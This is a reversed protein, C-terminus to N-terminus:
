KISKTLLNRDVKKTPLKKDKCLISPSNKSTRETNNKHILNKKFGILREGLTKKSKTKRLTSYIVKNTDTQLKSQFKETTYTPYIKVPKCSKADSSVKFIRNSKPIKSKSDNSSETFKENLSSISRYITEPSKKCKKTPKRLKELSVKSASKTISKGLKKIKKYLSREASNKSKLEITPKTINIGFNM